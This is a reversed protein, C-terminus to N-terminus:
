RTVLESDKLDNAVLEIKWQEVNQKGYRNLIHRCFGEIIKEWDEISYHSEKFKGILKNVSIWPLVGTAFSRFSESSTVLYM